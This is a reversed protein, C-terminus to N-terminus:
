WANGKMCGIKSSDGCNRRILGSEPDINISFWTLKESYSYPPYAILNFCDDSNLQEIDFNPRFSNIYEDILDQVDSFGKSLGENSRM